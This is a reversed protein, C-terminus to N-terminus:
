HLPKIRNQSLGLLKPFDEQYKTRSLGSLTGAPVIAWNGDKTLTIAKQRFQSSFKSLDTNKILSQKDPDRFEGIIEVDSIIVSNGTVQKIIGKVFVPINQPSPEASRNLRSQIFLKHGPGCNVLDGTSSLYTSRYKATTSSVDPDDM